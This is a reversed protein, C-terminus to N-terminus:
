PRVSNHDNRNQSSGCPPHFLAKNLVPSGITSGETNAPKL